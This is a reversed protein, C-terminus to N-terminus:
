DNLEVEGAFEEREIIYSLLEITKYVQENRPKNFFKIIGTNNIKIQIKQDLFVELKVETIEEFEEEKTFCDKLIVGRNDNGITITKGRLVIHNSSNVLKDFFRNSLMVRSISVDEFIYKIIKNFKTINADRFCVFIFNSINSSILIRIESLDFEEVEEIISDGEDNLRMREVRNRKEWLVRFDMLLHNHLKKISIRGLNTEIAKGESLTEAKDLFRNIGGENVKMLVMSKFNYREDLM